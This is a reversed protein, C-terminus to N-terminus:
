LMFYFHLFLALIAGFGSTGFMLLNFFIAIGAFIMSKKAAKDGSDIPLEAAVIASSYSELVPFSCLKFKWNCILFNFSFNNNKM